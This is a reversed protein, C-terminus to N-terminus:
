LSEMRFNSGESLEQFDPMLSPTGAIVSFLMKFWPHGISRLSPRITDIRVRARKLTPM